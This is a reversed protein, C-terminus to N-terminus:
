GVVGLIERRISDAVEESLGSQTAQKVVSEAVAKLKAAMADQWKKQQVQARGLDATLHGVTALRKIDDPDNPDIDLELMVNFIRDTVLRQLADNLRGEDDGAERALTRAIETSRRIGDIREEITRGFRHVASKSVPDEGASVLVENLWDTLGRYDSFGGAILRGELQERIDAPLKAITSRSM